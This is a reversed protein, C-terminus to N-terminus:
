FFLYVWFIKDNKELNPLIRDKAVIRDWYTQYDELIDDMIRFGIKVDKPIKKQEKEEIEKQLAEKSEESINKLKEEIEKKQQEIKELYYGLTEEKGFNLIRTLEFNNLSIYKGYNISFIIHFKRIAIDFIFDLNNLIEQDSLTSKFFTKYINFTFM